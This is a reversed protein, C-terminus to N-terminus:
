SRNVWTLADVDLRCMIQTRPPLSPVSKLCTIKKCRGPQTPLSQKRIEMHFEVGPVLSFGSDQEGGSDKSLSIILPKKLNMITALFGSKQNFDKVGRHFLCVIHSIYPLLNIMQRLFFLVQWYWRVFFYLSGSSVLRPFETSFVYTMGNEPFVCFVPSETAARHAHRYLFKWSPPCTAVKEGLPLDFWMPSHSDMSHM